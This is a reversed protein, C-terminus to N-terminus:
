RLTVEKEFEKRLEMTPAPPTLFANSSVDVPVPNECLVEKDDSETAKKKAIYRARHMMPVVIDLYNMRDVGVPTGQSLILVTPRRAKAIEKPIQVITQKRLDVDGLKVLLDGSRIIRSAQAQGGEVLYDVYVGHNKLYCQKLNTGLMGRGLLMAFQHPELNDIIEQMHESARSKLILETQSEPISRSPHPFVREEEQKEEVEDSKANYRGRFNTAMTEAVVSAAVTAKTAAKSAKSLAQGMKVEINLLDEFEDSEPGGGSKAGSSARGEEDGNSSATIESEQRNLPAAENQKSKDSVDSSMNVFMKAGDESKSPTTRPIPPFRPISPAQKWVRNAKEQITPGQEKLFEQGKQKATDRLTSFRNMLIKAGKSNAINIDPKETSGEAMKQSQEQGDATSQTDVATDGQQSSDDTATASEDPSPQIQETENTAQMEPATETVAVNEKLVPPGPDESTEVSAM